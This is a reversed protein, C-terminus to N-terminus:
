RLLDTASHWSALSFHFTFHLVRRSCRVLKMPVPRTSLTSWPPAQRGDEFSDNSFLHLSPVNVSKTRDVATGLLALGEQVQISTFQFKAKFYNNEDPQKYKKYMEDVATVNTLYNPFGIKQVM